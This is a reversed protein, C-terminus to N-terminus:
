TAGALPKCPAVASVAAVALFVPAFGKEKRYTCQTRKRTSCLVCSWRSKMGYSPRLIM